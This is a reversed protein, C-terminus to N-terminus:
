FPSTFTKKLFYVPGYEDYLKQEHEHSLDFSKYNEVVDMYEGGKFDKYGLYTLLEEEMKILEEYGGKMEFEFM